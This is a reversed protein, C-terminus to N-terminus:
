KGISRPNTVDEKVTIHLETAGRWSTTLNGDGRYSFVVGKDRLPLRDTVISIYSFFDATAGCNSM